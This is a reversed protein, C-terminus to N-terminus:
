CLDAPEVWVRRWTYHVHLGRLFAAFDEADAEKMMFASQGVKEVGPRSTLDPYYDRKKRGDGKATVKRGSVFRQITVSEPRQYKRTDYSVIIRLVAAINEIKGVDEPLEDDRM